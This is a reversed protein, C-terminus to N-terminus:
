IVAGADPSKALWRRIQEDMGLKRAMALTEDLLERARARDDSRGRALLTMAHERQTLVVLPVAGLERNRQVADAFHAEAEEWRRQSAALLALFRQVSGLCVLGHGVVVCREAYPRLREYLLAGRAGDRLYACLQALTAMAIMWDANRPLDAFENAALQEFEQRAAADLGLDAYVLATAARWAPVAAFEAAFNRAPLEIDDPPKRGSCFAFIQVTYCQAADPDSAREGIEYAERALAEAREFEGSMGARMAQWSALFWLHSPQRLARARQAYEALERDATRLDGLELLAGLRRMHGRLALDRDGVADAMRMIESATELREAVTDPTWVAVSRANLTYALAARDASRRAMEVAQQSLAARRGPEGSWISSSRWVGLVRARLGSETEGFARLAEELLDLVFADAVGGTASVGAFGTAVGLAARALLPAVELLGVQVARARAIAAAAAFTAKAAAAQGGQRQAEGLALLLVCRQAADPQLELMQLAREYHSAGEEYALAAMAQEGARTAYDIAKAVEGASAAACFHAALAAAPASRDGNHQQELLTGIRQHLRGRQAPGISEYLTQRILAHCFGYRGLAAGDAGIFRAGAAEDLLALLDAQVVGATPGAVADRLLPLAFERGIVSAVTLVQRCPASLAGLRQLIAERVRQPLAIARLATADNETLRGTEALTQVVETVFFPNGDTTEHLATLLPPSPMHGTVLAVFRAIEAPALGGLTLRQSAPLRALEGLLLTLPHDHAVEVDRHTVVILVPAAMLERALFALLRLSPADAWHLDDLVIVLPARRAVRKLFEALADFLRFRADEPELPPPAPLEPLVERVEPLLQAIATAERGLERTLTIADHPGTYARLIQVWPWYPPAGSGEHCHGVLVRAGRAAAEKVLEDATRTKGIGAEGVLAVVRGRGALADALAGRLREMEVERGVFAAAAGGTAAAIATYGLAATRASAGARAGNSVPAIFRYGRRQATEIFRPRDCRDGLVRRIRYLRVKLVEKAVATNPWVARLLAEHTVIQGAHTALHHLVAFDTPSLEIRRGDRWLCGNGPDLHFPGFALVADEM